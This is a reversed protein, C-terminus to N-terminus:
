KLYIEAEYTNSYSIIFHTDKYKFPIAKKGILILHYDSKPFFSLQYKSIKIKGTNSFDGSRFLM